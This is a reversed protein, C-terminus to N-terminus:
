WGRSPLTNHTFPCRGRPGVPRQEMVSWTEAAAKPPPAAPASGEKQEDGFLCHGPLQRFAAGPVVAHAM